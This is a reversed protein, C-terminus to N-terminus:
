ILLNAVYSEPSCAEPAPIEGFETEKIKTEWRFKLAM